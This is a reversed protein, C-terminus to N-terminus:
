NEGRCRALFKDAARLAGAASDHYSFSWRHRDSGSRRRVVRQKAVQFQLCHPGSSWDYVTVRAVGPLVQNFLPSPSM